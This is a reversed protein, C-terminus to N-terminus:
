NYYIALPNNFVDYVSASIKQPFDTFLKEFNDHGRTQFVWLKDTNVTAGIPREAPASPGLM